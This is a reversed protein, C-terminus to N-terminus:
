KRMQNASMPQGFQVSTVTTNWNPYTVHNLINTADLRIDTNIRDGTRITRAISGNMGSQRPGIISDRGANGWHGALPKSYSSASLRSGGNYDPRISGTLGNVPLPLIPTLPSGSGATVQTTVTWERLLPGAWGRM